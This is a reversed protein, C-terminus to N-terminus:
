PPLTLATVMRAPFSAPPSCFIVRDNGAQNLPYVTSCGPTFLQYVRPGSSVNPPYPCSLDTGEPFTPSRRCASLAM